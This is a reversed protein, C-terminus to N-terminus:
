AGAHGPRDAALVGSVLAAAAFQLSAGALLGCLPAVAATWLLAAESTRLCRVLLSGLAYPVAAPLAQAVYGSFPAPLQERMVDHLADAGLLAGKVAFLQAVMLVALLFVDRSRPRFKRMNRRGFEFVAACLLAAFLGGGWRVQDAGSPLEAEESPGSWSGASAIPPSCGASRWWSVPRRWTPSACPPASWRPISDAGPWTWTTRTRWCRRCRSGSNTATRSSSVPRKRM